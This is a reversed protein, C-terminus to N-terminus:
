RESIQRLKVRMRGFPVDFKSDVLLGKSTVKLLAKGKKSKISIKWIERRKGLIMEPSGKTYTVKQEIIKQEPILLFRHIYTGPKKLAVHYELSNFDYLKKSFFKKKTKGKKRVHITIGKQDQKGWTETKKGKLESIIKFSTLQHNKDYSCNTKNFGKVTWFVWVRFSFTGKNKVKISGDKQFIEHRRHKGALKGNFYVDYRLIKHKKQAINKQTTPPPPAALLSTPVLLFLSIIFALKTM